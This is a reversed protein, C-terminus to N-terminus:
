FLCNTEDLTAFTIRCFFGEPVTEQSWDYRHGHGNAGFFLHVGVMALKGLKDMMYHM